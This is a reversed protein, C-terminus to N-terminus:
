TKQDQCRCVENDTNEEERKKHEELGQNFGDRFGRYAADAFEKSPSYRFWKRWIKKLWKM